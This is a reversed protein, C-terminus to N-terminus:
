RSRAPAPSPLRWELGLTASVSQDTAGGVVREAPLGVDPDFALGYQVVDVGVRLALTRHFNWGVAGGTAMGLYTTNPFWAASGVEGASLGPRLAMQGELTLVDLKARLRLGFELFSYTVDPFPGESGDSMRLYSGHLGWAVRPVFELAAWRIRVQGGLLLHGQSQTGQAPAGLGGRVNTPLTGAVDVHLGLSAPWARTFAAAPYSELRLRLLPTAPAVSDPPRRGSLDPSHDALPDTYRFSRGLLGSEARVDLVSLAAASTGLPSDPASFDTDSAKAGRSFLLALAGASAARTMARSLGRPLM